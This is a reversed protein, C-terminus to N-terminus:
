TKRRAFIDGFLSSDGGLIRVIERMSEANIWEARAFRM